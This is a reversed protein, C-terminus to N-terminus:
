AAFRYGAHRPLALAEVLALNFRENLATATAADVSLPPHETWHLARRLLGRVRVPSWDGLMDMGALEGGAAELFAGLVDLVEGKGLFGSDWNVAAEGANMVDKDLTVYLPRARLELRFPNLLEEIRERGAPEDRNERLPQHDIRSWRSGRFNRVAPVVTIKGGNLFSWPALWRFGNDFDLEGGVHFIRRVHPLRAAHYLWTGCHLFPIGRMWDPHKDLVLLNCPQRLRRLLALSVHHFDGSGFFTLHPRTDSPSDALEELRREFGQYVGWRCAMRICPGWEQLPLVTAQLRGQLREQAIVSGDLDLVRAEM